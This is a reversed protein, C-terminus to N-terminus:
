GRCIRSTGRIRNLRERDKQAIPSCWFGDATRGFNKALMEVTTLCRRNIGIIGTKHQDFAKSSKFYAQCLPCQNRDGRLRREPIGNGSDPLHLVRAKTEEALPLRGEDNKEDLFATNNTIM